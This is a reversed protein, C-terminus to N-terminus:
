EDFQGKRCATHDYTGLPLGCFRCLHRPDCSRGQVVVRGDSSKVLVVRRPRAAASVSSPARTSESHSQHRDADPAPLGLPLIPMTQVDKESTRHFLWRLGATVGLALMVALVLVFLSSGDDGSTYGNQREDHVQLTTSRSVSLMTRFVKRDRTAADIGSIRSGASSHPLQLLNRRLASVCSEVRM